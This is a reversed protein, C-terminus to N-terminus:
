CSEWPSLKFFPGWNRSIGAMSLHPARTGERQVQNPKHSNQGIAYPLLSESHGESLLDSIALYSEGSERSISVTPSVLQLTLLRLMRVYGPLHKSLRDRRVRSKWGDKRIFGGHARSVLGDVLQTHGSSGLQHWMSCFSPRTLGQQLKHVMFNM